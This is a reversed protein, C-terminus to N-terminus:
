EETGKLLDDLHELDRRFDRVVADELERYEKSDLPQYAALKEFLNDSTVPLYRRAVLSAKYADEIAERAAMYIDFRPMGSSYRVLDARNVSRLSPHERAIEMWIDIREEPTPYDIDVISLPELLDYFFPDIESDEAATALVFVDPSEVASRILGIAERAGRSLSAFVFGYDDGMEAMPSAWMDLDEIMLVGPGEFSNRAANLLPQSDAQAMVCLVPMGQLNEEMRMRIAPLGLEGLTAAM